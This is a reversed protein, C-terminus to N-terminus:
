HSIKSRPKFMVEGTISGVTCHDVLEYAGDEFFAKCKPVTVYVGVGESDPSELLVSDIAGMLVHGLGLHQYEPYVGIFSLMHFRDAPISQRIRQEKELMQKTGFMGATLLMRLRWHWYRGSGFAADPAILCAVALLRENLHLGIVPQKANYFTHLEEKIASRLRDEYGEDESRFIDCFLPDDHYANYLISAAVRLEEATLYAAKVNSLDFTVSTDTLM